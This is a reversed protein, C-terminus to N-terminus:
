RVLLLLGSLSFLSLATCAAVTAASADSLTATRRALLFANAGTPMGAVVVAVGTALTGFGGLRCLGLMLLPQLVLKIPVALLVERLAARADFGPLSAGLCFLAMPAGAGGLMQVLRHVAGPVPVGLSRWAFAVAIAVLIPNRALAPLTGRLARWPSRGTGGVEILLTALPLLLIAHLALIPLMVAVGDVGFAAAIIPVGLMATNGYCGNLGVIVSAPLGGGLLRGALLTTLGFVLLCGGFYVVAIGGANVQEAEVVAGFLLAPLLLYFVLDNVGRLGAARLVRWRRAAYGLLILAFVPAIVDALETM